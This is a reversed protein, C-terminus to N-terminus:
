RTGKRCKTMCHDKIRDYIEDHNLSNQIEEVYYQKFRSIPIELLHIDVNDKKENAGLIIITNNGLYKYIVRIQDSKLEYFGKFKENNVIPRDQDHGLENFKKKEILEVLKELKEHRINKLDKELFSKNDTDSVLFTINYETKKCNTNDKSQIEYNYIENDFFNRVILYLNVNKNYENTIIKKTEKDIYFDPEKADNIISLINDQIQKIIEIYLCKYENITMNSESYTPLQEIYNKINDEYADSTSLLTKSKNIIESKNKIHIDPFKEFGTQLINLFEFKDIHNKFNNNIENNYIRILECVSIIAINDIKKFQLFDIITRFEDPYIMQRYKLKSLIKKYKDFDKIEGSYYIQKSELKEYEDTLKNKINELDQICMELSENDNSKKYKEYSYLISNIRIIYQHQEFINDLLINLNQKNILIEEISKNLITVAEELLIIKTKNNDYKARKEALEQIKLYLLEKLKTVTMKNNEEM